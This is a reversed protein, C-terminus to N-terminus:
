ISEPQADTHNKRLALRAQIERYMRKMADTASTRDGAGMADEVDLGAVEALLAHRKDKRSLLATTSLSSM